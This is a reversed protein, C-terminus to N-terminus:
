DAQGVQCIWVELTDFSYLKYTLDFTSSNPTANFHFKVHPTFYNVYNMPPVRASKYKDLLNGLIDSDLSSCFILTAVVKIYGIPIPLHSTGPFSWLFHVPQRTFVGVKCLKHNTPPSGRPQHGGWGLPRPLDNRQILKVVRVCSFRSERKRGQDQSRIRLRNCLLWM